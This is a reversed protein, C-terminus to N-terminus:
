RGQPTSRGMWRRIRAHYGIAINASGIHTLVSYMFCVPNSYAPFLNDKGPQTSGTRYSDGVTANYISEVILDKTGDSLLDSYEEIAVILSTGIFGRWNPDWSRYIVVPPQPEEPEEPSQQYGGYRDCTLWCGVVEEAEQRIM